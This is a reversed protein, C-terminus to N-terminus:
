MEYKLLQSSSLVLGQSYQNILIITNTKVIGIINEHEENYSSHIFYYPVLSWKVWSTELYKWLASVKADYVKKQDQKLPDMDGIRWKDFEWMLNHPQTFWIKLLEEPLMWADVNQKQLYKKEDPKLDWPNVSQGMLMRVLNACTVNVERSSDVIRPLRPDIQQKQSNIFWDLVNPLWISQIRRSFLTWNLESKIWNIDRNIVLRNLNLVKSIEKIKELNSNFEDINKPIKIKDWQKILINSQTKWRFVFQKWLLINLDLLDVYSVWYAKAIGAITDWKNIEYEETNKWIQDRIKKLEPATEIEQSKLEELPNIIWKEAM